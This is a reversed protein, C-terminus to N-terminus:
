MPTAMVFLRDIILKRELTESDSRFQYTYDKGDVVVKDLAYLSHPQMVLDVANGTLTINCPAITYTGPEQVYMFGANSTISYLKEACEWENGQWVFLCDEGNVNVIVDTLPFIETSDSGIELFLNPSTATYTGGKIFQYTETYTGGGGHVYNAIDELKDVILKSDNPTGGFAKTISDLSDIILKRNSITVDSDIAKAIKNLKDVIQKM